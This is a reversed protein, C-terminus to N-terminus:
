PRSDRDNDPKAPPQDRRVRIWHDTFHLHPNSPAAPMHCPLCNDERTAVTCDAARGRAADHCELCVGVHFRWDRNAPRHPNHCTACDLRAAQGDSLTVERQKQFCPSQTLGVPAFRVITRNDPTIEGGMESARRHCEGCREVAEAPSLESLREITTPQDRDVDRLHGQTNWHCRACGINPQLEAFLIRGNNDRPVYTSHCGFCNATEAAPWLRGLANVGTSDETTEAGLTVGLENSPYWSVAHEIATTRGEDDTWTILPTQAHTGSGFIWSLPLERPYAPTAVRLEGDQLRYHFDVGQDARHFSRGSFHDLVAADTARHLTQAHPALHYNAIVDSHCEACRSQDGRPTRASFVAPQPSRVASTRWTTLAGLGLAAVVFLALGRPSWPRPSTPTTTATVNCGQTM